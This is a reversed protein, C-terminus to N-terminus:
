TSILFNLDAAALTPKFEIVQYHGFDNKKFPDEALIGELEDRNNLNSLIVGGIRPEKRGSLIFNGLAYQAKLFDIHAALQTEILEISVKYTISIIFM